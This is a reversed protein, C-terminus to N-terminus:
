LQDCITPDLELPNNRLLPQLLMRAWREHIRKSSFLLLTGAIDAIFM